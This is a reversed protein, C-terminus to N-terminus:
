YVRTVRWGRSELLAPLGREGYLHLAGVAIFAGGERLRPEAREAMRVNREHLLHQVFWERFRRAEESKGGSAERIRWMGALDRALYAEIVRGILRPMSEYHEVAERLMAVQDAEPMREFVAIQEEMGELEHLPKGQELAARALVADLVETANQPPVSLMVAVAWPKLLLLVPEPLGIGAAVKVTKRFLEDGAVGALNRGEAHLMRSALVQLSEPDLKAELTVSRAQKLERAVAPPLATVRPDALHITGFLHSPAAGRGEVRWLLGEGFREAAAAAFSAAALLCLLAPMAARRARAATLEIIHTPALKPLIRRREPMM